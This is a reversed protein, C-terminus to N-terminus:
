NGVKKISVWGITNTSIAAGSNQLKRLDIYDGAILRIQRAPSPNYIQTTHAVQAMITGMEAFSANNKYLYNIDYEGAAWGGGSELATFMSVEYIGSIPATFKWSGAGTTVAGHSDIEKTGFNMVTVSANAISEAVTKYVANVSESAAIASPGSIREISVYTESTTGGLDLAAGSDQYAKVQIYDGFNLEVVDSSTVYSASTSFGGAPQRLAQFSSRTTNKYIDIARTSGGTAAAWGQNVTVRYFGPVPATFKWAAGTTVAGHTDYIKTSFDTVDFSGNAISQATARGYKAAVVRTDTQDSMQVSSSWGLIPIGSVTYRGRDNSAFLENGPEKSFRSAVQDQAVYLLNASVTTDSFVVWPGYGATAYADLIDGNVRYAFGHSATNTTSPNKSADISLGAPLSISLADATVTGAVITAKIELSDGVRRWFTGDNSITGLGTVTPTYAVWDSIPTGFVYNSPSVAINDLKLTFSAASTTPFYLLLRYSTAASATQFTASFRDAITSSNSLLKFSSPEIFTGDTVNQIYPIVDSDVGSAGAVFTGASVIYDMGITLVKAFYAPTLTIGTYVVRGQRNAADKAITISNAGALPAVSSTALTIGTVAGTLAGAPRTAAAFSDVTWGTTGTEGDPNTVFNVAGASSGVAVLNTGDDVYLKDTDTGFVITAEKRTLADLTAKAASPVTLRSTNSATGGQYDKNTLAETGALTALTSTATPITIVQAAPGTVTAPITVTGTFTPSASPAKTNIQTQIASTVGNVYGIEVATTTAPSVFGSADSVLARSVTTAALKNLAIAAAAKIDANEINTIPNLDADITKNTLTQTTDTGVITLSADPVTLTRTVGTSLASTQIKVQKTVDVDDQITLNADKVTLITTNDLTKNSLTQAAALVALTDTADPLTLTRTTGTTISSAQLKAQKTVDVDDQITLSADKITLSTTNDLTKNSLTEVLALTALNSTATPLTVTGAGSVLNVAVNGTLTKNTLVDTTAKGVLTDTADPITITRNVTQSSVISTKTSATGAPTIEIEKPTLTGAERILLGKLIRTINFGM